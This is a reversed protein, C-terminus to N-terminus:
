RPVVFYITDPAALVATDRGSGDLDACEVVNIWALGSDALVNLASRLHRSMGIDGRALDLMPEEKPNTM